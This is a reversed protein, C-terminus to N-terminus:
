RSGYQTAGLVNFGKQDASPCAMLAVFSGARASCDEIMARLGPECVSTDFDAFDTSKVRLRATVPAGQAYSAFAAEFDVRSPFILYILKDRPTFDPAIAQVDTIAGPVLYRMFDEM